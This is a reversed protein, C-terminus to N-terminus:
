PRPSRVARITLRSIWSPVGSARMRRYARRRAISEEDITPLLESQARSELLERSWQVFFHSPDIRLLAELQERVCRREVRVRLDLRKASTAVGAAAIRSHAIEHVLMAAIAVVDYHAGLECDLFISQSVQDFSAPSGLPRALVIRKACRRMWQIHIPCTEHLLTIADITRRHTELMTSHEASADFVEIGASNECGVSTLSGAMLRSIVRSRLARARSQWRHLMKSCVIPIVELRM